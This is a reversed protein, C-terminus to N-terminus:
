SHATIFAFLIFYFNLTKLSNWRNPSDWRLVLLFFLAMGFVHFSIAELEVEQFPDALQASFLPEVQFDEV